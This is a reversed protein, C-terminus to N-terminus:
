KKSLAFAKILAATPIAAIAGALWDHGNIGLYIAAAISSLCVILGFVQGILDSRFVSKQQKEGLALQNQQTAINADIAMTEIKRRHEAEDEALKILRAAAGPV